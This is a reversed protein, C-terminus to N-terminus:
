YRQLISGYTGYTSIIYNPKRSFWDEVTKLRDDSFFPDNKLNVDFKSRGTNPGTTLPELSDPGAITTFACSAYRLLMLKMM